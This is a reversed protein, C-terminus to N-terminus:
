NERKISYEAIGIMFDKGEKELKANKIVNLSKEVYREAQKEAYGLSGTEVIIQRFDAIQKKTLKNNGLCNKLIKKQARNSKELAKYILITRKNEQIDSAIPKGLKEESGFIGLIDDRIQFAIGLPIAYGSFINLNKQVNKNAAIAGIHLPGEITYKATKYKLVTSIDHKNVNSSVELKIDLFQGAITDIILSNTKNLIKAKIKDPLKSSALIDYGFASSLDGGLIAMSQGFQKSDGKKYRKKHIKEYNAHMTIMGRRADDEDMIDDHILFYSHILEIFTCFDLIMKKNKGGAALYGFYIYAARLKKGKKCLSHINEVLEVLSPNVAKIKQKKISFFCDLNKNIKQKFITLQKVVNDM